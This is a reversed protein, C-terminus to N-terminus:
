PNSHIVGLVYISDKKIEYIIRYSYVFIERINEDEIEPVIRGKMPFSDLIQSRELIEETVKKAYYQSDQGIYDHIYKLVIKAPISWKVM